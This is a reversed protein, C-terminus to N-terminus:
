PSPYTEPLITNRMIETFAEFQEFVVAHGANEFTFTRKIPADLKAYWELLLDRRSTLEAAGDLIYVPVDLKPVDTRFDIGQLQPYMVTFMDILGRLVNAKEILNYESGMVGFFGLGASAGLQSYSQPPTYPKYLSEYHGMVFAYGYPIDAYPPEGYSRMQTVLATDGTRQALAIVDAYLQRDTEHQSVMQGSGIWAHFLDPRQQVALVGLTSGWSEGLMYIKDEDFRACLYNTLEITDSVAQELTLTTVPDLAAYSKGTGRQDWSVVIFDRSLDHFFLRSYPLDSQGPGGSLYLLVPKDTSFGRVLITQDQGGLKVTTLEAVSGAVVKGQADLIPPTSAPVIIVGALVVVGIGLFATVAWTSFGSAVPATFAGFVRPSLMVGLSAGLMMPLVSLLGHFGRGLILALVGYMENLRIAGVTPGVAGINALEFAIIYACPALLMAWRSRLLVGAAVGVALCAGMVILAQTPTAPGRRMTMVVIAGTLAAIAVAAIALAISRSSPM